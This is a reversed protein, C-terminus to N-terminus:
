DMQFHSYLQKKKNVSRKIYSTVDKSGMLVIKKFLINMVCEKESWSLSSFRSELQIECDKNASDIPPLLQIQSCTKQQLERQKKIPPLALINPPTPPTDNSCTLFVSASHSIQELVRSSDLSNKKCCYAKNYNDVSLKKQEAVCIHPPEDAVSRKKKIAFTDITKPSQVSMSNQNAQAQQIRVKDDKVQQIADCLFTEVESRRRSLYLLESKMTVNENQWKESALRLNLLDNQNEEIIKTNQGTLTQVHDSHSIKEKELKSNLVEVAALLRRNLHQAHGLQKEMETISQTSLDYEIKIMKKDELLQKMEKSWRSRDQEYKQLQGTIFSLRADQQKHDPNMLRNLNMESELRIENKEAEFTATMEDRQIKLQSQMDCLIRENTYELQTNEIASRTNDAMLADNANQLIKIANKLEEVQCEHQKSNLECLNKAEEKIQCIEEDKLADAMDLKRQQLYIIEEQEIIKSQADNAFHEHITKQQEFSERFQQLELQLECIIVKQKRNSEMLWEQQTMQVKSKDLEVESATPSPPQGGRRLFVYTTNGEKQVNKELRTEEHIM